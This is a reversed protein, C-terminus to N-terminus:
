KRAFKGAKDRPHNGRMAGSVVIAAKKAHPLGHTALHSLLHGAGYAAAQAAIATAGATAGGVLAGVPGGIAGGALVGKGTALLVTGARMAHGAFRGARLANHAQRAQAQTFRPQAM